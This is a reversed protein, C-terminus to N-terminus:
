KAHTNKNPQGVLCFLILWIFVQTPCVKTSLICVLPKLLKKVANNLNKVSINIFLLFLDLCTKVLNEALLLRLSRFLYFNISAMDPLSVNKRKIRGTRALTTPCFYLIACKWQGTTTPVVNAPLRLNPKLLCLFDGNPRKIVARLSSCRLFGLLRLSIIEPWLQEDKAAAPPWPAKISGVKAYFRCRM